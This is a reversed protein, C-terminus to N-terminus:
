QSPRIIERNALDRYIVGMKSVQRFVYWGDPEVTGVQPWVSKINEYVSVEPSILLTPVQTIKYKSVLNKGAPTNIDITRESRIAVGYGQSLISKHVRKADYCDTCSSDTLYTVSVRGVEKGSQTDIFIPTVKTFIFTGDKIEGNSKIFGELSKKSVEGTALYTPLRSVAFKAILNKAEPLDSTLINEEEVTVNQKKIDTVAGELDFCDPCNPVSIKTLKIKAPRAAEKAEATKKDANILTQTLVFAGTLTSLLASALFIKPWAISIGKKM